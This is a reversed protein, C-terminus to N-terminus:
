WETEVRCEYGCSRMYDEIYKCLTPCGDPSAEDITILFGGDKFEKVENCRLSEWNVPESKNIGFRKLREPDLEYELEGDGFELEGDGFHNASCRQMPIYLAYLLKNVMRDIMVIKEDAMKNIREWDKM